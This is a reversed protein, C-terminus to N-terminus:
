KGEGLLHSLAGSRFLDNIKEPKMRKLDERSVRGIPLSSDRAGTGREKLIKEVSDVRIKQVEDALERLNQDTKEENEGLFKMAVKPDINHDFSFRYAKEKLEYEKQLSEATPQKAKELEEAVLKPMTEERWREITKAFRQDSISQVLRVVETQTSNAELFDKIESVDM